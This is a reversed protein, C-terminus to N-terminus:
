KSFRYKVNCWVITDRQTMDSLDEKFGFKDGLIKNTLLQDQTFLINDKLVKITDKKPTISDVYYYHYAFGSHYHIDSISSGLGAFLQGKNYRDIFLSDNRFEYTSILQGGATDKLNIYTVRNDSFEYTIVGGELRGRDSTFQTKFYQNMIAWQLSDTDQNARGEINETKVGEKANYYVRKLDSLDSKSFRVVNNESDSMCSYTMLLVTIAGLIYKSM